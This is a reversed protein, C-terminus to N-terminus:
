DCKCQLFSHACSSKVSSQRMNQKRSSSDSQSQICQTLKFINYTEPIMNISPRLVDRHVPADAIGGQVQQFLQFKSEAEQRLTVVFARLNPHPNSFLSNLHRNYTELPNNTRNAIEAQNLMQNHINWDNPTFLGMWTHRFYAFFSEFKSPDSTSDFDSMTKIYEFGITSIEQHPLVTLVDLVGPSMLKGIIADDFKLKM